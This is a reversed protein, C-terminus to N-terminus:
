PSQVDAGIRHNQDDIGLVLRLRVIDDIGAPSRNEGSEPAGSGTTAEDFLWTIQTVISAAFAQSWLTAGSVAFTTSRWEDVHRLVNSAAGRSGWHEPSAALAIELRRHSPNYPEVPFCRKLAPPSLPVSSHPGLTEHAGSRQPERDTTTRRFSGQAIRHAPVRVELAAHWPPLFGSFPGRDLANALATGCAATTAM